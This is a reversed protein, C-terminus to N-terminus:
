SVITTAAAFLLKPSNQIPVIFYHKSRQPRDCNIRENSLYQQLTFSM